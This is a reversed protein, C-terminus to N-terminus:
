VLRRAISKRVLQVKPTEPVCFLSVGDEVEDHMHSAKKQTKKNSDM